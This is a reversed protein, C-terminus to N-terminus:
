ILTLVERALQISKYMEGASAFRKQPLKELAKTITSRLMFPVADPITVVQNLHAKLLDGPIGDFPREGV